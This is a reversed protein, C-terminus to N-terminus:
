EASGPCKHARSRGIRQPRIGKQISEESFRWKKRLQPMRSKYRLRTALINL